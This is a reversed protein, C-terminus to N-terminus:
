LTSIVSGTNLADRFSRSKFGKELELEYSNKGASLFPLLNFDRLFSEAVPSIM